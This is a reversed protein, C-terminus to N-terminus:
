SKGDENESTPQKPHNFGYNEEMKAVWGEFTKNIESLNSKARQNCESCFDEQGLKLHELMLHEGCYRSGCDYCYKVCEDPAETACGGCNSDNCDPHRCFYYPVCRICHAESCGVCIFVPLVYYMICTQSFHLLSSSVIAHPKVRVM